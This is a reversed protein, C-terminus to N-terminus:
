IKWNRYFYVILHCGFWIIPLMIYDNKELYTFPNTTLFDKLFYFYYKWSNEYRIENKKINKLRNKINYTLNKMNNLIDNIEDFLIHVNSSYIKEDRIKSVLRYKTECM